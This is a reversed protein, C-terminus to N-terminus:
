DAPRAGAIRWRDDYAFYYWPDDSTNEVTGDADVDYHWGLRYGLGNYTYEAVLAQDSTKKIKRLRGFADYEYEYHEGDDTLNGM